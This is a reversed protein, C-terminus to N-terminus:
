KQNHQLCNMATTDPSQGIQYYCYIKEAIEIQQLLLQQFVQRTIIKRSALAPFSRKLWKVTHVGQNEPLYCKNSLCSICFFHCIFRQYGSWRSKAQLTLSTPARAQMKKGNYRLRYRSLLLITNIALFTQSGGDFLPLVVLSPQYQSFLFHICGITTCSKPPVKQVYCAIESPLNSM